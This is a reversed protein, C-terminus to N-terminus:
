PAGGAMVTGLSNQRRTEGSSRHCGVPTENLPGANM